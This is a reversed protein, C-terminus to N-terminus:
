RDEKWSDYAADHDDEDPEYYGTREKWQEVTRLLELGVPDAQVLALAAPTLEAWAEVVAADRVDTNDLAIFALAARKALAAAIEKPKAGNAGMTFEVVQNALASGLYTSGM